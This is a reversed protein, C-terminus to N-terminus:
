VQTITVRFGMSIDGVGWPRALSCRVRDNQKKRKIWWSFKYAQLLAVEQENVSNLYVKMLEGSLVQKM